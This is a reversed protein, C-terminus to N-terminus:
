NDWIVHRRERVNKKLTPLKRKEVNGLLRITIAELSKSKLYFVNKELDKVQKALAEIKKREDEKCLSCLLVLQDVFCSFIDAIPATFTRLFITSLESALATADIPVLLSREYRNPKEFLRGQLSSNLFVTLLQRIIELNSKFIRHSQFVEALKDRLLQKWYSFLHRDSCEHQFM